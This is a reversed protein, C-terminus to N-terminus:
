YLRHPRQPERRFLSRGRLRVARIRHPEPFHQRLGGQHVAQRGQPEHRTHAPGDRGQGRRNRRTHARLHGDAGHHAGQGSLIGHGLQFYFQKRGGRDASQFQQDAGHHEFSRASAGAQKGHERHHQHRPHLHHVHGGQRKQGSHSFRRSFSAKRQFADTNKLCPPRFQHSRSQRGRRFHRRGCHEDGQTGDDM